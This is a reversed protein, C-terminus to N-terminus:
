RKYRRIEKVFGSQYTSQYGMAARFALPHKFGAMRKEDLPLYSLFYGKWTAAELGGQLALQTKLNAQEISKISKFKSKAYNHYAQKVYAIVSFLTSYVILGPLSIRGFRLLAFFAGGLVHLLFQQRSKKIFFQNAHISQNLQRSLKSLKTQIESAQQSTNLEFKRISSQQHITYQLADKLWHHNGQTNSLRSIELIYHQQWPYVNQNAENLLVSLQRKLSAPSDYTIVSQAIKQNAQNKITAVLSHGRQALPVRGLLQDITAQNSELQLELGAAFILPHRYTRWDLFSQFYSLASTASMGKKFVSRQRNNLAPSDCHYKSASWDLYRQRAFCMVASIVAQSVVAIVIAQLPSGIGNLLAGIIASGVFMKYRGLRREKEKQLHMAQKAQSSQLIEELTLPSTMTNM